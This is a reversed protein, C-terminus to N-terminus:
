LLRMMSEMSTDYQHRDICENHMEEQKHIYKVISGVREGPHGKQNAEKGAWQKGHQLAIPVQPLLVGLRLGANIPRPRTRAHNDLGSKPFPSGQRSNQKDSSCVCKYM